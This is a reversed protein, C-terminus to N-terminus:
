ARAYSKHERVDPKNDFQSIEQKVDYRLDNMHYVSRALNIFEEGFDQKKELERLDDEVNWLSLNVSYLKQKLFEPVHIDSHLAKSELELLEKRIWKLKEPDKIMQSKIELITIRDYLEGLSVSVLYVM